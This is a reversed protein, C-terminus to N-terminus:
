QLWGAVIGGLIIGILMPAVWWPISDVFRTIETPAQHRRRERAHWSEVKHLTSPKM